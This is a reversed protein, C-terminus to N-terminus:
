DQFPHAAEYARKKKAAFLEFGWGALIFVAGLVLLRVDREGGSASAAFVLVGALWAMMAVIPWPAAAQNVERRHALLRDLYADREAGSLGGARAKAQRYSPTM